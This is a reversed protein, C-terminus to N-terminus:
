PQTRPKWSMWCGVWLKTHMEERELLATGCHRQELEAIEDLLVLVTEPTCHKLFDNLATIRQDFPM